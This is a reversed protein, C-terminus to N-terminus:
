RARSRLDYSYSCRGSAKCAGAPPGCVVMSAHWIRLAVACCLEGGDWCPETYWRPSHYCKKVVPHCSLGQACGDPCVTTINCSNGVVTQCGAASPLLAAAVALPLMTFQLWM